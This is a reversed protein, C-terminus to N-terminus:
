PHGWQIQEEQVFKQFAQVAQELDHDARDWLSGLAGPRPVANGKSDKGDRESSLFLIKETVIQEPPLVKPRKTAFIVEAKQSTHPQFTNRGLSLVGVIRMHRALWERVYAFQSGGVKNHPLVIALRGGPRLLQVCREIFLVDRENRKGARALEYSSLLASERVEGAFPPNTVICDFGRWGKRTARAVDEVTVVGSGDIRNQEFLDQGARPTLLSNLRYLNSSGDGAIVMLAKAVQIARQDIDFGWINNKSYEARATADMGETAHQMAHVLFGSSGCAPDAVLEHTTPAVIRTIAEVVHRPTFYQGKSGKASRSILYEFVGDMVELSTDSLSLRDVAQVCVQLHDPALKPTVGDALAQPWRRDARGLLDEVRAVTALATNALLATDPEFTEQYLKAILLKFVEQFEDEGSNALVLEELRRFISQWSGPELRHRQSM